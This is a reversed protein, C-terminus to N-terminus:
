NIIENKQRSKKAKQPQKSKQSPNPGYTSSSSSPTTATSTTSRCVSTKSSPSPQPLTFTPNSKCEYLRLAATNTLETELMIEQADDAKMRDITMKVLKKGLGIRRCKPDVALMAIYGRKKPLETDDRKINMELKSVICGICEEKYFAMIGLEPWKHLFYRYTYIPYPESLEKEIM